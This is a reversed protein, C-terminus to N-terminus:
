FICALVKCAGLIVIGDMLSQCCKIAEKPFCNQVSFRQPKLIQWHYVALSNLNFDIFIYIYIILIEWQHWERQCQGISRVHKCKAPQVVLGHSIILCKCSFLTFVAIFRPVRALNHGPMSRLASRLAKSISFKLEGSLRGLCCHGPERRLHKATKCGLRSDGGGNSHKREVRVCRFCLHERHRWPTLKRVLALKRTKWSSMASEKPHLM